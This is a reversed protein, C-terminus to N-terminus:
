QQPLNAVADFGHMCDLSMLMCQNSKFGIDWIPLKTQNNESLPFGERIGCKWLISLRYELVIMPRKSARLPIAAYRQM